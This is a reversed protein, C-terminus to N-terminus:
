ACAHAWVCMCKWVQLVTTRLLGSASRGDDIAIPGM